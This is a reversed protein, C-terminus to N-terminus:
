RGVAAIKAPILAALIANQDDLRKDIGDLRANVLDFKYRVEVVLEAHAREVADLRREVADFRREVRAGLDAIAQLIETNTQDAM